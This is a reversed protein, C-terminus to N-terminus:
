RIKAKIRIPESEFKSGMLAAGNRPFKPFNRIQNQALILLDLRSTRTTTTGLSDLDNDRVAEALTVRKPLKTEYLSSRPHIAILKSLIEYNMGNPHKDGTFVLEPSLVIVPQSNIQRWKGLGRGKAIWLPRDVLLGDTNIRVVADQAQNEYILQAVKLRVTATIIAHYIPNFYVGLGVDDHHEHMKGVVGSPVRKLFTNLIPDCRSRQTYLMEILEELPSFGHKFKLFWGEKLRFSGIGYREVFKAEDVTLFTDWTGVPNFLRGDELRTMIPSVKVDDNITITGHLFGWYASEIIEKSYTYEAYRLDPLRAAVSGYACSLDYSFCEDADWHGLQFAERWELGDCKEAFIQAELFQEPTDNMNPLNPLRRSSLFAGIPSTLKSPFIDIKGLETLLKNGREALSYVSGPEPEDDDFFGDLGYITTRMKAQNGGLEKTITLLKDPLFYISYASQSDDVNFTAQHTSGVIAECIERGLLKFIPATFWDLNWVVKIHDPNSELLFDLLYTINPSLIRGERSDLILVHNGMTHITYGIIGM